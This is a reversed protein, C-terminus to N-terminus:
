NETCRRSVACSSNVVYFLLSSVDMYGEVMKLRVDDYKQLITLMRKSFKGSTGGSNLIFMARWNPNTQRLLATITFIPVNNFSFFRIYFFADM